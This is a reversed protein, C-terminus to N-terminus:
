GPVGRVRRGDLADGRVGQCEHCVELYEEGKEKDMVGEEDM